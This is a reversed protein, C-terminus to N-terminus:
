RLGLSNMVGQTIVFVAALGDLCKNKIWWKKVTDLINRSIFIAIHQYQNCCNLRLYMIFHM